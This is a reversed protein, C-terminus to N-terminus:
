WMPLYIIQIVPDHKPHGELSSVRGNTSYIMHDTPIHMLLYFITSAPLQDMNKEFLRQTKYM